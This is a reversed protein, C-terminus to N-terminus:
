YYYKNSYVIIINDNDNSSQNKIIVITPTYLPHSDGSLGDATMKHRLVAEPFMKRMKEYKEMPSPAPPPVPPLSSTLDPQAQPPSATAPSSLKNSNMIDEIEQESLGDKAMKQRIAGDPLKNKKMKRYTDLGDSVVPPQTTATLRAQFFAEADEDSIGDLRMKQRVQVEQLVKLMSAYKSMRGTTEAEAATM